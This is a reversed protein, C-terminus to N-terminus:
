TEMIHANLLTILFFILSSTGQRHSNQIGGGNKSSQAREVNIKFSIGTNEDFISLSLPLLRM